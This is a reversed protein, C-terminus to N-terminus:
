RFYSEKIKLLSDVLPECKKELWDKAGTEDYIQLLYDVNEIWEKPDHIASHCCARLTIEGPLGMAQFFGKAPLPYSATARICLKRSILYNSYTVEVETDRAEKLISKENLERLVKKRILEIKEEPNSFIHWYLGESRYIVATTVGTGSNADSVEYGWLMAWNQANEATVSQLLAHQYYVLGFYILIYVSLIVMPFVIAYETTIAGVCHKGAKPQSITIGTIM